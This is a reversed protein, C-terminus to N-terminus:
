GVSSSASTVSQHAQPWTLQWSAHGPWCCQGARPAWRRCGTMSSPSALSGGLVLSYALFFRSVVALRITCAGSSYPWRLSSRHDL